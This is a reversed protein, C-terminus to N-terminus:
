AALLSNRIAAVHRCDTGCCGGVVALGPLHTALQRYGQALEDIDGIDIETAADLEAHSRRSANARVGRLRRQWDGGDFLHGMGAAISQHSLTRPPRARGAVGTAEVGHEQIWLMPVDPHRDRTSPVMKM